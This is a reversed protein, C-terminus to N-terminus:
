VGPLINQNMRLLNEPDYKQKLKALRSFHAKDYAESIRDSEDNDMYNVYVDGSSFPQMAEYFERVWARVTDDMDRDDSAGLILLNHEANRTGFATADAPVRAAAGGIIHEVTTSCLATPAKNAYEVLTKQCDESLPNLFCSKWYNRNGEPFGADFAQQVETYPKTDIDDLLPTGFDRISQLVSEGEQRSGHYVAYVGVVPDGDPSTLFALMSGLQDPADATLEAFAATFDEAQDRTHLILGALLENVPHLQYDLRTVVGFNGGGGRLGWFLDANQEANAILVDGAPTVVEAELLNDCALGYSRSLWGFGGGLTLGAIGTSSIAGGPTALGHKQTERDFEGWTVGGQASAVRREADVSVKNMDGLDIVLGGDCTAKGAVNHGGGRVAMALEQERAFNVAAVVDETNSCRCILAPRCDIMGNWVRRLEDYAPDEQDILRGEFNDQLTKYTSPDLM